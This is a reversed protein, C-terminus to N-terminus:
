FDEEDEPREGNEYADLVEVLTMGEEAAWAELQEFSFGQKVVKVIRDFTSGISEGDIEAEYSDLMYNMFDLKIQDRNMRSSATIVKKLKM